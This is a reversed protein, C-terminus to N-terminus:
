HTIVPFLQASGCCVRPGLGHGIQDIRSDM